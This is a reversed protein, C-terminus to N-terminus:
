LIMKERYESPKMGMVKRFVKAFYNSNSYGVLGAIQLVSLKPDSLLKKAQEIRYETIFGNITQGMNEKFLSCMYNPTIHIHDCLSQLSLNEDSYSHEIFRIAERVIRTTGKQRAIWALYIDLAHLAFAVLDDISQFRNIKEWLPSGGTENIRLQEDQDFLPSLLKLFFDKTSEIPTGDHLKFTDALDRITQAAELRNEQRVFHTFASIRDPNLCISSLKNEEFFVVTGKNKYFTRPLLSLAQEYSHILQDPRGVQKGVTMFLSVRRDTEAALKNGIELLVHELIPKGETYLHVLLLTNDKLVSLSSYGNEGFLHEANHVIQKRVAPDESVATDYSTFKIILSLFCGNLPLITDAMRGRNRIHELDLSNTTLQVAIEAKILPITERLSRTLHDAHQLSKMEELRLTGAQRLADRLEELDIPKEIYNLAKLSIASKLYTKDSYGSMFIIKCDPMMDRVRSALEIGDMRPMRVDTIMIDPKFSNIVEIASEGCDAQAIDVIGYNGQLSDAIGERTFDEDDVVLLKV